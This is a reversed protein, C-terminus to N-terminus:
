LVWWLFLLVLLIGIFSYLLYADPDGNQLRAVGKSLREVFAAVPLYLYKEFIKFLHIDATGEKFVANKKDHFTRNSTKKTRYISKFITVIPESFGSATYEMTSHQSIIGCGWTESVRSKSTATARLVLYAIIFTFLLIAGIFLMNPIPLSFGMWSFIQSSFVGLVICAAALIGPGILMALPVEKADAAKKSRPMALTTIGFAKVFCAAALASTLAFISLCVILLVELIPNNLASFNFFGTFIMLESVFGNFPPLASISLAGILFLFSTYPMTKVLGGMEEINRTDASTVMSGATLFLLSKFLAHNLTHFLAGLLCLYALQYLNSSLFIIYLGVGLLIIGINEISHYALLRKLDHEKLAYIVGLIASISGAVLVVIGWWLPPILTSSVVRIFGYIAIKIMVGSMLASINSPSAPHAYPLWKHFPIIGAKIGFGLFLLIFAAIIFPNEFHAFTFFSRLTLVAGGQTGVFFGLILCVTCLQMMVFYFIGAKIAEEKKYENMVLFLSSITMLEWFFLFGFVSEALVVMTMAFVFLSMVSVVLTKRGETDLHDVYSFSFVAVGFTVISIVICFFAALRDIFLSVTLQPTMQYLTLTLEHGDMLVFLSAVFLISAAIVVVVLAIKRLLNRRSKLPILPVVFALLLLGLTVVFWELVM